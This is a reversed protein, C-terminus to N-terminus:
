GLWPTMLCPEATLWAGGIRGQGGRRWGWGWSAAPSRRPKGEARPCGVGSLLGLRAAIKRM